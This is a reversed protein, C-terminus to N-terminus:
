LWYNLNFFLNELEYKDIEGSSLPFIFKDIISINCPKKSKKPPLPTLPTPPPTNKIEYQLKEGRINDDITM